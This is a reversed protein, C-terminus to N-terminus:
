LVGPSVKKWEERSWLWQTCIEYLQLSSLKYFAAERGADSFGEQL